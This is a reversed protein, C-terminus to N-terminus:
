AKGMARRREHVELLWTEIRPRLELFSPIFDFEADIKGLPKRLLCKGKGNRVRWSLSWATSIRGDLEVAVELLTQSCLKAQEDLHMVPLFNRRVHCVIEYMEFTESAPLNVLGRLPHDAAPETTGIITDASEFWIGACLVEVFQDHFSFLYHSFDSLMEEVSGGFNYCNGYHCREYEYRERLWTSNLVTTVWSFTKEEGAMKSYPLYEGRSVKISDLREFTVRAWREDRTPFNICTLPAGYTVIPSEVSDADVPVKLDQVCENSAM